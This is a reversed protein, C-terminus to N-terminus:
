SAAMVARFCGQFLRYSGQRPFSRSESYCHPCNGYLMCPSWWRYGCRIDLQGLREEAEPEIELALVAAFGRDAVPEARGGDHDLM